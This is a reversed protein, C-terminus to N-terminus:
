AIAQCVLHGRHRLLRRCNVSLGIVGCKPKEPEHGCQPTFRSSDISLGVSLSQIM